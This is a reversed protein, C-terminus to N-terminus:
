RMLIQRHNTLKLACRRWRRPSKARLPMAACLIRWGNAPTLFCYRICLAFIAPPAGIDTVIARIM